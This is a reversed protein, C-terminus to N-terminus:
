PRCDQTLLVIPENVSHEVVHLRGNADLMSGSAAHLSSTPVVPIPVPTGFAGATMTTLWPAVRNKGTHVAVQEFIIRADGSPAIALRFSDPKSTTTMPVIVDPAFGSAGDIRTYHMTRASSANTSVYAVHAAGDPGIALEINPEDDVGYPDVMAGSTFVSPAWAGGVKWAVGPRSTALDEYAVVLGLTPSVGAVIGGLLGISMPLTEATFGAGSRELLTIHRDFYRTFLVIPAGAADLVLDNEDYDDAPTADTSSTPITLEEESWGTTLKATLFLRHGHHQVALSSRQYLIQPRGCDDIALRVDNVVESAVGSPGAVQELTLTGSKDTLYFVINAGSSWAAHMFGGRDFRVRISSVSANIAPATQPSVTFTSAVGSACATTASGPSPCALPGGAEPAADHGGADAAPADDSADSRRGGDAAIQGPPPPAPDGDDTSSVAAAGSCGALAAVIWILRRMARSPRADHADM